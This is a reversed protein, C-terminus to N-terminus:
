IAVLVSSKNLLSVASDNGQLLESSVTLCTCALHRKRSANCNFCSIEKIIAEQTIIANQLKTDRTPPVHPGLGSFGFTTTWKTSKFFQSRSTFACKFHQLMKDFTSLTLLSLFSKSARSPLYLHPMESVPDHTSLANTSRTDTSVRPRYPSRCDASIDVSVRDIHRDLTPRYTTPTLLGDTSVM